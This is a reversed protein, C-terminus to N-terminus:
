ATTDAVTFAIGNSVLAGNFFLSITYEGAVQPMQPIALNCEKNDWMDRWRVTSTQIDVINGEKNRIVFMCIIKDRSDNPTRDAKIYIGAKEGVKFATTYSDKKTEKYLKFSMNKPTLKYKNFSEAAKVTYTHKGGLISVKDASLLEFNYEAGPVVTEIVTSNSETVIIEVPASNDVQYKLVWGGAPAENVPVWSINLKSSDTNDITFDKVTISNKPVEIRAGISMGAATVEIVYNAAVDPVEIEVSCDATEIPNPNFTDNYCHVIWNEVTAGDEASWQATLKGDVCSTALLNIPKIVKSAVHTVTNIGILGMDCEADLTFTYEHGIELNPITIMTETLIKTELAGTPDTYSLTWEEPEPGTFSFTLIVSGDEAGTKATFQLIEVQAPTTYSATTQGILKHFGEIEVKITYASDPKLETFTATGNSVAAKQQIGYTDTCLVTLTSEDTTTAINVTLLGNEGGTLTISNITQIYYNKYGYVGGALLAATALLAFLWVLWGRHKKKPAYDEYEYEDDEALENDSAEETDSEDAAEDTGAEETDSEVASTNENEEQVDNVNVIITDDTTAEEEDPIVVPPVPVDIPEPAVVPEPTEHAILEDAQSLMDSVEDTVETYEIEASDQEETTEDAPDEILTLNGESDETYISEETVEEIPLIDVAVEATAEEAPIDESIETDKTESSEEYRGEVTEEPDINVSAPIIPTDHAGNRQMYDVLAQGMEVPSEWRQAPDLACAKLIIESMEYDAYVPPQLEETPVEGEQYPLQGGSFVQHLILGIAYIDIKDNLSSFADAIEPATYVSRYRDPLSQYQLSSMPIFGIDGIRYEQTGSLYINTPKLDVYLYGMRRAVALASCLDLGLNLAQLHTMNNRRLQHRLTSRYASLIYIDYGSGDEMPEIQFGDVTLFGELQALEQLTEVETAISDAVGKYYSVASERDSYAGSLLLADLQVSSAPVSIIKVIYKEDTDKNLAPCCRVGNHDSIPDGMVFNDLLPSILKPESM